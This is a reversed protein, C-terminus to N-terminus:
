IKPYPTLGTFKFKLNCIVSDGCQITDLISGTMGIWRINGAHFKEPLFDLVSQKREFSYNQDDRFTLTTGDSLVFRLGLLHELPDAVWPGTLYLIHRNDEGLNISYERNNSGLETFISKESGDCFTFQIKKLLEDSGDMNEAHSFLSIKKINQNFNECTLDFSRDSKLNDPIARNSEIIVKSMRPDHHFIEEKALLRFKNPVLNNPGYKECAKAM